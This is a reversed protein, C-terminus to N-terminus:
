IVGVFCRWFLVCVFFYSYGFVLRLYFFFNHAVFCCCCCFILSVVFITYIVLRFLSSFSDCNALVTVFYFTNFQEIAAITRIHQIFCLAACKPIRNLAIAYYCLYFLGMNIFLHFGSSIADYVFAFVVLLLLVFKVCFLLFFFDCPNLYFLTM